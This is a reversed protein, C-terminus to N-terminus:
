NKNSEIERMISICGQHINLSRSNSLGYKCIKKAKELKGMRHFKEAQALHYEQKQELIGHAIARYHWYNLDRAIRNKPIMKLHKLAYKANEVNYKDLVMAVLQMRLMPDNYKAIVQNFIEKARLFKGMQHYLIGQMVQFFHYQPHQKILKEILEMSNQLEGVRMYAISLVYMGFVSNDDKYKRILKKPDKTYGKIKARLVNYYWQFNSPMRDPYSNQQMYEKVHKIREISLPHTRLYPDIEGKAFLEQKHFDEMVQKLGVPSWQLKHLVKLAGTDAAGEHARTHRVFSVTAVPVSGFIMLLGAAPNFLSTVLGSLFMTSAYKSLIKIDEIAVTVHSGKVHSIEHAMVGILPQVKHYKEILKSHIFVHEGVAVFANVHNDIVLYFQLDKDNLGSEKFLPAVLKKLIFTVEGDTVILGKQFNSRAGFNFLGMMIIFIFLSNKM